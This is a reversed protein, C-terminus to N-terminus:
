SLLYSSRESCVDVGCGYMCGCWGGVCHLSIKM